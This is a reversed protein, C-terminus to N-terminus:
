RLDIVLRAPGTLYYMSVQPQGSSALKLSLGPAGTATMSTVPGSGTFTALQAPDVSMGAAELYLSGDAARGLRADPLAGPGDLDLVIRSLGSVPNGSRIRTVRFGSGGNGASIVGALEPVPPLSSPAPSPAAPPPTPVPSAAAHPSPVTTVAATRSSPQGLVRPLTVVGIVLLVVLVALGLGVKVQTDLDRLGAPHERDFRARIAERYESLSDAGDEAPPDAVAAALAARVPELDSPHDLEERMRSVAAAVEDAPETPEENFDPALIATEDASDRAPLPQALDEEVLRRGRAEVDEADAAEAELWPPPAYPEPAEPRADLAADADAHDAVPEDYTIRWPADFPTAPLEHRLVELGEGDGGDGAAVPPPAAAAEVPAQGPDTLQAGPPEPVESAPEAPAERFPDDPLPPFAPGAFDEPLADDPPPAALAGQLTEQPLDGPLADRTEEPLEVADHAEGHPEGPPDASVPGGPEATPSDVIWAAAGAPPDPVVSSTESVVGPDAEHWAHAAPAEAPAPPRAVAIGARDRLAELAPMLVTNPIVARGMGHVRERASTVEDLLAGCSPCGRLHEAVQERADPTLEDDLYPTLARPQCKKM